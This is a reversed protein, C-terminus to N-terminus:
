FYVELGNLLQQNCMWDMWIADLGMIHSLLNCL